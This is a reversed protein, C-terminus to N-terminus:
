TLQFKLPISGVDYIDHQNSRKKYQQAIDHTNIFKSAYQYIIDPHEKLTIALESIRMDAIMFENIIQLKENSEDIENCEDPKNFEDLEDSKNLEDFEDYDNSEKVFSHWETLKDRITEATPRKQLDPDMCLKALEIYCSPTELAFAPRKGNCIELALEIDFPREYFPYMGTTVETM